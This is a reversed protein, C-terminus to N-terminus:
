QPKMHELYGAAEDSLKYICPRLYELRELCAEADAKSGSNQMSRLLNLLEPSEILMCSGIMKHAIMAFESWAQAAAAQELRLLDGKIQDRLSTLLMTASKSYQRVLQEDIFPKNLMPLLPLEEQPSANNGVAAPSVTSDHDVASKSAAEHMSPHDPYILPELKAALDHPQFPKTVYDNMGADLCCQLDEKMANATLAMIPIAHGSGRELERIKRTAELGDMEPMHVDMLILAFGGQQWAEVAQVGNEVVQVTLGMDKLEESAVLQNVENDEALLVKEGDFHITPQSVQFPQIQVDSFDFTREVPKNDPHAGVAITFSFTSGKDPESEVQLEGGMIEILRKAINLGLGTGGYKRTTSEDAQTFANFVHELQEHSMGIGTDTVAVQLLRNDVDTTIHVTVGGQRTFKVANGVLNILIQRLRLPDSIFKSPVAQLDVKLSIGKEEVLPVLSILANQIFSEIHISASELQLSDAEIKSFDLIDNLLALLDNSAQQASNLYSVADPQLTLRAMRRLLGIVGNLPTRIEHSMNALFRSKARNAHMAQLTEEVKKKLERTRADVMQELMENNQTLADDRKKLQVLMGNFGETLRGLEDDTTVKLQNDFDSFAAVKDVGAVLAKIPDSVKKQLLGAIWFLNLMLLMLVGLMIVISTIIKDYMPQLSVQIGICGVDMAELHVPLVMMMQDYSFLYQRAAHRVTGARVFDALADLEVGPRSFSAFPRRQVNYLVAANIDAESSLSALLENATTVDEFGLSAASNSALIHALSSIRDLLANRYSYADNMAYGLAFVILAACSVSLIMFRIKDTISSRIPAGSLTVVQTHGGIAPVSRRM